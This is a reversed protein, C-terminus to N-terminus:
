YYTFFTKVIFDCFNDSNIKVGENAKLPITITQDVIWAWIMEFGGGQYRRKAVPGDSNSLIWEKARGYSGNCIVRPEGSFIVKFFDIKMYKNDWNQHKLINAKM